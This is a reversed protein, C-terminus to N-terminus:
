RVWLPSGSTCNMPHPSFSAPLLFTPKPPLPAVAGPPAMVALLAVAAVLHSRLHRQMAASPRDQRWPRTLLRFPTGTAGPTCATPWDRVRGLQPVAQKACIAACRHQASSFPSAAALRRM